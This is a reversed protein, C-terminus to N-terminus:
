HLYLSESEDVAVTIGTPCVERMGIFFDAPLGSSPFPQNTAWAILSRACEVIRSPATSFDTPTAEGEDKDLHFILAEGDANVYIMYNVLAM